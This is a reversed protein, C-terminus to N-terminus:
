RFAGPPRTLRLNRVAGPLTGSVNGVDVTVTLHSANGAQGAGGSASSLTRGRPLDQPAVTRLRYTGDGFTWVYERVGDADSAAAAFRVRVGPDGGPPSATLSHIVPPDTAPKLFWPAATPDTVFFAKLQDAVKRAGGPAPHVFDAELDSCAYTLGDSRPTLGDAWLYPGWSM